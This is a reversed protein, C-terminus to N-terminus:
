QGLLMRSATPIRSRGDRTITRARTSMRVGSDELVAYWYTAEQKCVKDVRMSYIPLTVEVGNTRAVFVACGGTKSWFVSPVKIAKPIPWALPSVTEGTDDRVSRLLEDCQVRHVTSLAAVHNPVPGSHGRLLLAAKHRCHLYAVFIHPRIQEM